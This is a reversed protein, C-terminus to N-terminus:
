NEYVRIIQKSSPIVPDKRIVSDKRNCEVFM